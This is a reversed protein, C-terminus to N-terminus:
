RHGYRLFKTQEPWQIFTAYIESQCLVICLRTQIPHNQRVHRAGPDLLAAGVGEIQKYGM